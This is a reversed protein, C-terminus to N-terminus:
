IHDSSSIQQWSAPSCGVKELAYGSALGACQEVAPGVEDVRPMELLFGKM